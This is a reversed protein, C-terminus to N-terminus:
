KDPTASATSTGKDGQDIAFTVSLKAICPIPGFVGGSLEDLTNSTPQVYGYYMVQQSVNSVDNVAQVSGIKAGALEALKTAKAKADEMAAKYAEARIAQPDPVKFAVLPPQPPQPYYNTNQVGPGIALGADRGTDIIKLVSDMMAESEMKDADKLLLRLKETVSVKQKSPTAAMGRMMAQQAAADIAQNVSFGDSEITLGPIKLNEIAEVARKRADRYKVIADATLEAEGSIQASIEVITPKAKAQGQGMVTIGSSAPAPAVQGQAARGAGACAIAAITLITVHKLRMM